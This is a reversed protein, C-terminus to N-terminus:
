GWSRRDRLGHYQGYVDRRLGGRRSLQQRVVQEFEEMTIKGAMHQGLAEFSSIVDLTNGNLHGPAITGGYIMLSPRDLRAMAIVAGPMNKDCGMIAIVGDYHQASAITEISDAIVERSPLSYRMGFTGMSIGDSVGITNSVFGVMDASRVGNRAEAALDNLHMNCPNGEFGSSVIGVQALSMDAESLGAGFLMARAAPHRYSQTLQRSHRNLGGIETSIDKM